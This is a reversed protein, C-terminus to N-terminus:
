LITSIIEKKNIKVELKKNSKKAFINIDIIDSDLRKILNKLADKFLIYETLDEIKM